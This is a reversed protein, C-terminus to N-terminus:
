LIAGLLPKLYESHAAGAALAVYLVIELRRLRAYLGKVTEAQAARYEECTDLHAKLTANIEGVERDCAPAKDSM